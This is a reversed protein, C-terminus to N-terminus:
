FPVATPEDVIMLTLLTTVGALKRVQLRLIEKLKDVSNAKIKVMFDYVGWLAHTEEVGEVHKLGELVQTESGIDSNVLVVASIM